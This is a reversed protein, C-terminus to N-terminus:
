PNEGIQKHLWEKQWESLEIGGIFEVFAAPDKRLEEITKCKLVRLRGKEDRKSIAVAGCDKESAPDVGVIIQESM